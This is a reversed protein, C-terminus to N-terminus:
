CTLAEVKLQKVDDVCRAIRRHTRALVERLLADDHGVRVYDVSALPLAQLFAHPDFDFRLSNITLAHLDLHLSCGAKKVVASIFQAENMEVQMPKMRHTVNRIGMRLGLADQVQAIRSVTWDVAARTSPIPLNIFLPADDASWALAESFVQTHHEDMFARLDRLVQKDLPSPGGLSLSQSLCVSPYHQTLQMLDVHQQSSLGIWDVPSLELFQVNNPARNKLPAILASRLALGAGQLTHHKMFNSENLTGM